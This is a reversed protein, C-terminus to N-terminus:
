AEGGELLEPNDHINGIVKISKVDHLFYSRNAENKFRFASDKYVVVCRSPEFRPDILYLSDYFIYELDVIDGEYIDKNYCGKLETFQGVTDPDVECYLWSDEDADVLQHIFARGNDCIALNGFKWEKNNLSRGRFKITRM